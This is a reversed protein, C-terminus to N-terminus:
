ECNGGEKCGVGLEAILVGKEKRRRLEKRRIGVDKCGVSERREVGWEGNNRMYFQGSRLGGIVKKRSGVCWERGGERRGERVM